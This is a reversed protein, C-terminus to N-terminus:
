KTFMFPILHGLHMAESSPGRGTYLFFPKKAEYADLVEPLDSSLFLFVALSHNVVRPAQALGLTCASVRVPQTRARATADCYKHLPFYGRLGHLKYWAANARASCTVATRVHVYSFRSGMAQTLSIPLLNQKRRVHEYLWM